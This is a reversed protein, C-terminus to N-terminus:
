TGPMTAHQLIHIEISKQLHVLDAVHIDAGLENLSHISAFSSMGLSGTGEADGVKVQADEGGIEQNGEGGGGGNMKEEKVPSLSSGAGAGGSGPVLSDKSSAKALPLMCSSARLAPEKERKKALSSATTKLIHAWTAAWHALSEETSTETLMTKSLSARCEIECVYTECEKDLLLAITDHLAQRDVDEFHILCDAGGPVPLM